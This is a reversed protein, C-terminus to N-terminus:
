AEQRKLHGLDPDAEQQGDHSQHHRKPSRQKGRCRAFGSTKPSREDKRCHGQSQRCDDPQGRHGVQGAAHGASAHAVCEIVVDGGYADGIHDRHQQDSNGGQVSAVVQQVDDHRCHQRGNQDRSHGRRDHKSSQFQVNTYWVLDEGGTRCRGFDQDSILPPPQRRKRDAHDREAGAFVFSRSAPAPLSCTKAQRGPKRGVPLPHGQAIKAQSANGFASM